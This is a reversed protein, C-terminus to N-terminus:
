VTMASASARTEEHVAQRARAIFDSLRQHSKIGPEDSVGSNVDVGYPGVHAIAAEVNEPHLGGALIVPVPSMERIRRSISWDHTLGTGGLRDRTRTDLVLGDVFKSARAAFEIASDNTVHVAKLIKLGALRHRLLPIDTLPFAGHLQVTTVKTLRCIDVVVDLARCHTVLVSSVFPPLKQILVAADEVSLRDATEYDLQVLFGLADAGLRVAAVADEHRAIGCIKVRPVADETAM